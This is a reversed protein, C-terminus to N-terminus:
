LRLVYLILAAATACAALALTTKWGIAFGLGEDPHFGCWFKDSNDNM